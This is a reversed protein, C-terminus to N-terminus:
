RSAAIVAQVDAWRNPLLGRVTREIADTWTQGLNEANKRTRAVFADQFQREGWHEADTWIAWQKTAGLYADADSDPHLRDEAALRDAARLVQRMPKLRGQIAADAVSYVTGAPPPEKGFEACFGQLQRVVATPSSARPLPATTDIPQLALGDPAMLRGTAGDAGFIELRFADGTSAGTAILRVLPFGPLAGAPVPPPQQQQQQFAARLIRPGPRSLYRDLFGQGPLQPRLGAGPADFSEDVPSGTVFVQYTEIPMAVPMAYTAGLPDGCCTAPGAFRFGQPGADLAQRLGPAMGVRRDGAPPEPAPAPPPVPKGSRITEEVTDDPPADPDPTPPADHYSYDSIRIESYGISNVEEIDSIEVAGGSSNHAIKGGGLSIGVHYYGGDNNFARGVFVVVKGRPIESSEDWVEYNRLNYVATAAANVRPAGSSATLQNSALYAVYHVFEYCIMLRQSYFQDMSTMRTFERKSLNTRDGYSYVFQGGAAAVLAEAAGALDHTGKFRQAVGSVDGANEPQNVGTPNPPPPPPTPLPPLPTSPPNRLTLSDGTVPAIGEQAPSGASVLVVAASVVAAALGIPIIQRM